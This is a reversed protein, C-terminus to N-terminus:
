TWKLVIFVMYHGITRGAKWDNNVACGIIKDGM